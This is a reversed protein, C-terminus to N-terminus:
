RWSLGSWDHEESVLYLALRQAQRFLHRRISGTFDPLAGRTVQLMRREYGDLLAEKGAKTLLAGPRGKDTKGHAVTLGGSRCLRLVVQDVVYPRFEEMLDLALSPRKDQDSHLLGISPELGVSALATVCESLLIAYCYGIAANFVDMPPQRSRGSFRLDEPLLLPIAEFYARAASGELGMLEDSSTAEGVMTQMAKILGLRPRLDDATEPSAFRQIVTVQHRLKTEVVAKAFRIQKEPSVSLQARIRSVRVPTSAPTMVGSYNGKRSIFAAEVGQGLLWSRAGASLGVAGFLVVRELHSSPLDFVDVDNKSTVIIRGDKVRIRSGQLGVYLVKKLSPEVRHEPLLPPYKPGFDEGLFCFGQTFSMIETKESELRLGMDTLAQEAVTLAKRMENESSGVVTFDDAYRVVQFGADLLAEDLDRLVLNCLLPSLAAGQPLGPVDVVGHATFTRRAMLVELLRTLSDDPLVDTLMGLAVNKSISPFCEDIDTRLVWTMGSERLQLVRQVADIVGLGPRFGYAASSLVPDAHPTVANLVCREVIRDTMPPVDLVRFGGATKPILVQVLNKPRYSGDQLQGWLADLRESANRSFKEVSNPRGLGPDDAVPDKEADALIEEWATRLCARDTVRTLLSSM